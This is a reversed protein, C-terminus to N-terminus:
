NPAPYPIRQQARELCTRAERNNPDIRLASNADTVAKAFEGKGRLSLCRSVYPNLFSPDIRISQTFDAIALDLQRLKLYEYGRSYYVIALNKGTAQSIRRTCAAIAQQGSGKFCVDRDNQQASAPTGVSLSLM